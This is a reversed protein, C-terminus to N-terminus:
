NCPCFTVRKKFKRKIRFKKRQCTKENRGFEEYPFVEGSPHYIRYSGDFFERVKVKGRSLRLRMKVPKLQLIKGEVSITFDKNVKREMRRSLIEKGSKSLKFPIKPKRGGGFGQNKLV